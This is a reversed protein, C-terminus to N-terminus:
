NIWSWRFVFTEYLEPLVHRYTFSRKANSSKLLLEEQGVRKYVRMNKMLCKDNFKLAFKIEKTPSEITYYVFEDDNFFNNTITHKFRFKWKSLKPLTKNFSIELREMATTKELVRISGSLNPSESIVEKKVLGGSHYIHKKISSFEKLVTMNYLESVSANSGRIGTFSINYELYNLYFNSKHQKRAPKQDIQLISSTIQNITRKFKRANTFDIWLYDELMPHLACDDIKVTLIRFDQHTIRRNLALRLEERVWNSIMSNHSAILIFVNSQTIGKAISDTLSDGAYLYWGDFWVDINNLLLSEGIREAIKSDQKNYSIFAKYKFM